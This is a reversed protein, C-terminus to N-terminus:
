PAEDSQLGDDGHLTAETGYFNQMNLSDFIFDYKLENILNEADARHRYLNWV